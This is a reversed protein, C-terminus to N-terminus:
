KYKAFNSWYNMMKQSILVEEETYHLDDTVNLPEGFIFMIEDAVFLLCKEEDHPLTSTKGHLVGMWEHWPNISSRVTFYYFYVPLNEQAYIDALFM